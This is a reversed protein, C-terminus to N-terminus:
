DLCSCTSCIIIKILNEKKTHEFFIEDRFHIYNIKYYYEISKYILHSKLPYMKKSFFEGRLIAKFTQFFEVANEILNNGKKMERLEKERNDKLTYEETTRM